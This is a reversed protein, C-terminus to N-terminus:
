NHQEIPIIINVIDELKDTYVNKPISAMYKYVKSKLTRIFRVAIVSKRENHTSYKKVANKELWSKMLRNYFESGQGVGGKNPKCNSKDLIKQFTNNVM